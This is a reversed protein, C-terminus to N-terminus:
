GDARPTASTARALRTRLEDLAGLLAALPPTVAKDRRRVLGIQRHLPPHLPLATLRRAAVDAKVSFHSTISLGLGAEVFKKM